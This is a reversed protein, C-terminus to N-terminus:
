HGFFVKMFRRLEAMAEKTAKSPKATKLEELAEQRLHALRADIKKIIEYRKSKPSYVAKPRLGARQLKHVKRFRRLAEEALIYCPREGYEGRGRDNVVTETVPEETASFWVDGFNDITPRGSMASPVWAFCFEDLIPKRKLVKLRNWGAAVKGKCRVPKVGTVAKSGFHELWDDHAIYEDAACVFLGTPRRDLDMEAEEKLGSQFPGIPPRRFDEPPNRLSLLDLSEALYGILHKKRDDPFVKPDDDCVNILLPIFDIGAARLKEYGRFFAEGGDDIDCYFQTGIEVRADPKFTGALDDTIKERLRAVITISM